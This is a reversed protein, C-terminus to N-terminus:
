PGAVDATITQDGLLYAHMAWLTNVAVGTVLRTYPPKSCFHSDGLVPPYVTLPGFSAVGNYFLLNAGFDTLAHFPSAPQYRSPAEKGTQAHVCKVPIDWEAHFTWVTYQWNPDGYLTFPCDLYGGAANFTCGSSAEFYLGDGSNSNTSLRPGSPPRIVVGGTSTPLDMCAAVSLLALFGAISVVNPRQRFFRRM